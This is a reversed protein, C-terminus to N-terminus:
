WCASTAAGSSDVASREALQNLSFSRCILDDAQVGQATASLTYSSADRVVTVSYRHDASDQPSVIVCASDDYRGFQTQCRELTQALEILAIRADTRRSKRVSNQYSPLAIMALLAIVTVVVMLEILTFGRQRRRM